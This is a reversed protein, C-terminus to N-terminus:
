TLKGPHFNPNNQHRLNICGCCKLANAQLLHRHFLAPLRSPNPQNRSRLDSQGEPPTHIPPPLSPSEVVAAALNVSSIAHTTRQKNTEAISLYM